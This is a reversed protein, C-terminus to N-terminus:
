QGRIRPAPQSRGYEDTENRNRRSVPPHPAEQRSPRGPGTRTAAGGEVRSAELGPRLRGRPYLPSLSFSGGRLVLPPGDCLTMIPGIGALVVGTAPIRGAAEPRWGTTPHDPPMGVDEHAHAGTS